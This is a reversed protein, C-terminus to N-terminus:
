AASVTPLARPWAFVSPDTTEHLIKAYDPCFKDRWEEGSQAYNDISIVGFDGTLLRLVGMREWESEYDRHRARLNYIRGGLERILLAEEPQGEPYCVRTNVVSIGASLLRTLQARYEHLLWEHILEGGFKLIDRFYVKHSHASDHASYCHKARWYSEAHEHIFLQVDTETKGSTLHEYIKAELQEPDIKRQIFDDFFSKILDGFNQRVYGYDRVLADALQDKGFGAGGTLGILRAQSM